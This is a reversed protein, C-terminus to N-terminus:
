DNELIPTGPTSKMYIFTLLSVEAARSSFRRFPGALLRGRKCQAEEGRAGVGAGAGEAGAGEAEDPKRKRGVVAGTPRVAEAEAVSM